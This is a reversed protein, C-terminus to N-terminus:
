PGDFAGCDIATGMPDAKLVKCGAKQVCAVSKASPMGLNFNGLDFYQACCPLNALFVDYAVSNCGQGGAVFLYKCFGYAATNPNFSYTTQCLCGGDPIRFQGFECANAPLPAASFEGLQYTRGWVERKAVDVGTMALLQWSGNVKTNLRLKAMQEASLVGEPVTVVVTAPKTLKLSAPTLSYAAVSGPPVAGGAAAIAKIEISADSSLGGAPIEIRAGLVKVTKGASGVPSGGASTDGDKSTAASVEQGVDPSVEQWADATASSDTGALLVPRQGVCGASAMGALLVVSRFLMPVSM